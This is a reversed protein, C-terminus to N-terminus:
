RPILVFCGILALVGPLRLVFESVGFLAYFTAILWFLLPTKRHIEAEDFHITLWDSSSLMNLAFGAYAAEDEDWLGISQNNWLLAIVFLFFVIYFLRNDIRIPLMNIM